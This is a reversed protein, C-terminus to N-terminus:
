NLGTDFLILDGAGLWTFCSGIKIAISSGKTGKGFDILELYCGFFHSCHAKGAATMKKTTITGLSIQTAEKKAQSVLSEYFSFLGLPIPM